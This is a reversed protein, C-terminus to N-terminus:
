AGAAMLWLLYIFGMEASPQKLELSPVMQCVPMGPSRNGLSIYVTPRQFIARPFSRKGRGEEM